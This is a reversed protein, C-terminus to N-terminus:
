LNLSRFVHLRRGDGVNRLAKFSSLGEVQQWFHLLITGASALWMRLELELLIAKVIIQM